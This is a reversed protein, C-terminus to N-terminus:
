WYKQYLLAVERGAMLFAGTGYEQHGDLYVVGPEHWPQQVRGLRGEESINRLLGNWANEVIPIFLKSDLYGRNVGWAFAYTFFATGSTESEPFEDPDLLGTTWLGDAGQRKAIAYAMEQFVQIYKLRRSDHVDLYNLVRTIGAIVWGNGRSWFIKNGNINLTDKYRADRYFLHDETDYLFDYTDWWLSDMYITYQQNQTIKALHALTPPAMFLGDCWNWVKRGQWLRLMSSDLSAQIDRLMQPNKFEDYLTLYVQGLVQDDGHLKRPGIQFQQKKGWDWTADLYKRDHTVEYTAMVGLYFVAREWMKKPGDIRAVPSDLQYDCVKRLINILASQEQAIEPTNDACAAVTLVIIGFVIPCYYKIM